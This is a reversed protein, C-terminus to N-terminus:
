KLHWIRMEHKSLQIAINYMLLFYLNAHDIYFIYNKKHFSM